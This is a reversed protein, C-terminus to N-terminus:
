GGPKFGETAAYYTSLATLMDSVVKTAGSLQKLQIDNDIHFQLKGTAQLDALRRHWKRDLSLLKGALETARNLALARTAVIEDVTAWRSEEPKPM